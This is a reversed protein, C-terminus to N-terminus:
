ILSIFQTESTGDSYTIVVEVGVRSETTTVLDTTMGKFSIAYNSNNAPYVVQSLKNVGSLSGIAKFSSNGSGGSSNDVMFGTNSWYSFGDDARSNLLQNFVSLNGVKDSTMESEFQGANDNLGTLLESISKAKYELNIDSKSPDSVNYKWKMIRTNSDINIEKDYVRVLGGIFFHEHELGSLESIDKMTITYSARPKSLEVLARECMEKLEYPNTYREDSITQVRVKKTYTYNEVFNIGNNAEAITMGEKGYPYIKTILERTDYNAKINEANKEHMVSAGTHVINEKVLSIIKNQTDFILEGGVKKELRRIASLRNVDIDLHLSSHRFSDVVGVKWGSTKLLDALIEKISKDSWDFVELPEGYAIDYWVAECSIDVTLSTKDVDVERIIYVTDFMQVLAENKIYGYNEDDFYMKFTLEDIGQVEQDLYIDFANDLIAVQEYSETLVIPRQGIRSILLQKLGIQSYSSNYKSKGLSNYLLKGLTNFKNM